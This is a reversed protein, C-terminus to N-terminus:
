RRYGEPPADRSNPETVPFIAPAFAAANAAPLAYPRLPLGHRTAPSATPTSSMPYGASRNFAQLSSDGSPMPRGPVRM